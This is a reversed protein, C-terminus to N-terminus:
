AEMTLLNNTDEDDLLTDCDLILKVEGAAKGIGKIYRSGIRNVELRSIIDAQAIVAVESVSDVILGITIDENEIVIVCTRDTYERPEKQFRIRVDMVPVIKGRLNIIGKIYVPLDPVQTIPQIGIIEIVSKIEIGYFENGVAFILYKDKQTDEDYERNDQTAYDTM